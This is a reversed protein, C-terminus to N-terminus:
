NKAVPAKKAADKKQAGKKSLARAEAVNERITGADESGAPVLPLMREWYRAAGRYDKREFAATGALALAKLNKPDLQLARLALEEPDGKMSQGHAMALADALDALVQADRPARIAAQSYARVAEPFRGMVSYSKGLMRWGQIDDPNKALREALRSVMADVDAAGIQREQEPPLSVAGPNGVALYVALAFLPVAAALSAHLARSGAKPAAADKEAVDQLLRRELERRSSDYDAQALTGAGLDADLERLQDRHVSINVQSREQPAGAAGRRPWFPRLLVALSLAALLASLAWFLTM